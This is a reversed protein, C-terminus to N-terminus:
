GRHTATEPEGKAVHVGTWPTSAVLALLADDLANTATAGNIGAVLLGELPYLRASALRTRGHASM